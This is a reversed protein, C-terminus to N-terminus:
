MSSAGADSAKRVTEMMQIVLMMILMDTLGDIMKGLPDLPSGIADSSPMSVLQSLPLAHHALATPTSAAPTGLAAVREYNGAPGPTFAQAGNADLAAASLTVHSSSGASSMSPSPATTPPGSLGGSSGISAVAMGTVGGVGGVAGIGASM